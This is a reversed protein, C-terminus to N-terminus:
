KSGVMEAQHKRKKFYVVLGVVAVSAVPVIVTTPFPEVITFVITESSGINGAKDWAYVKLNHGGAFLGSLTTNGSITVNQQGDLVYSIKTFREGVTFNLPIDPTTYTTNEPSFISTKPSTTDIIFNIVSYGTLKFGTYYILSGLGYSSSNVTQCPSWEVAYVTIKHNGEPIETLSLSVTENPEIYMKNQQWDAEFYVEKLSPKIEELGYATNYKLIYGSLYGSLSVNITFIVNNTSHYSQNMPSILVIAPPKANEPPSVDGAYAFYTQFPNPNAATYYIQTGVEV